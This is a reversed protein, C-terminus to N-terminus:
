QVTPGGDLLLGTEQVRKALNRGITLAGSWKPGSPSYHVAETCLCAAIATADANNCAHIYTKILQEMRQSSNSQPV